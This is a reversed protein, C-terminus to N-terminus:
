PALGWAIVNPRGFLTYLGGSLEVMRGNALNVALLLTGRPNGEIKGGFAVHTSDPSWIIRSPNPTHEETAYACYAVVEGTAVELTHLVAQGGNVAPNRGELPIVWFALHTSDPSWALETATLGNIRVAGYARSFQTWQSPVSDGPRIGYIEGGAIQVTPDFMGPAVYALYTGDPSWASANFYAIDLGLLVPPDAATVARLSGLTPPPETSFDVLSRVFFDGEQAVRLGWTGGPQIRTIRHANLPTQTGDETNQLYVQRAATWVLVTDQSWWEAESADEAVSQRNSGDLHMQSITNQSTDPFTIWRADPSLHCNTSCPRTRPLPYRVNREIDYIWMASPDLATVILGGPTFTAGRREITPSPCRM